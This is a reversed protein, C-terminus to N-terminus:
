YFKESKLSVGLIEKLAELAKNLIANLQPEDMTSDSKQFVVRVGITPDGKEPQYYDFIEMQICDEVNQRFVQLLDRASVSLPCLFSFDRHVKPFRSVSKFVPIQSTEWLDADIQILWSQPWRFKEAIKPHVLGVLGVTKGEQVLAASLAPHLFPNEETLPEWSVTQKLGIQSILGKIAYYSWDPDIRDSSNANWSSPPKKLYLAASVVKKQLLPFDKHYIPAIEVVGLGVGGQRLNFALVELLSPWVSPRMVSFNLNLPNKLEILDDEKDSIDAWSKPCFSYTVVEHFGRELWPTLVPEACVIKRPSGLVSPPWTIRDIGYIRLIESLFNQELPLDFRWSPTTWILDGGEMQGGLALMVQAVESELLPVGALAQLKNFTTQMVPRDLPIRDIVQPSWCLVQPHISQLMGCFIELIDSQGQRDVGREFRLSADTVRGHKRLLRIASPEFFAAKLVLDRSDVQASSELSGILGPMGIIQGGGGVIAPFLNGGPLTWKQSDLATFEIPTSSTKLLVEIKEQLVSGDFAHTPHGFVMMLYQSIDVAPIKCSLGHKILFRQLWFPSQLRTPCYVKAAAYLPALLPDIKLDLQTPGDWVVKYRDKMQQLLSKKSFTGRQALAVERALGVYSLCDGRNPTISLEMFTDEFEWAQELSLGSPVWLLTTHSSWGLRAPTTFGWSGSLCDLVYRSDKDLVAAVSIEEQTDLNLAISVGNEVRLIKGLALSSRPPALLFREVELGQQTFRAGLEKPALGIPFSLFSQLTQYSIIM